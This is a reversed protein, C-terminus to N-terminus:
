QRVVEGIPLKLKSPRDRDHYIVLTIIKANMTRGTAPDAMFGPNVSYAPFCAASISLRLCHGSPLRFCTPQLPIIIQGSDAQAQHHRCYGQTLNYVSGDPRVESVIACLDFSPADATCYLEVQIEGAIAISTALPESTYTLVDSRCDLASRDFSGAPNAAHGGLSPVPRWPDHVFTDPSNDTEDVVAQTLRGDTQDLGALGTSSLWYPTPTVQPWHSFQRWRDGGMEFLCVSPTAALDPDSHKLHHDFWRIQLRDIPTNAEPGFDRQGVKRGWPIHGWPGIWLHQLHQSRDRMQKFLRLNGWLYPDFWGGIHLMPLDIQSLDPTLSQWYDDWQPHAVWDHFFSDPAHHKLVEPCTPIPESLPLNRSAKFLAEYAIEDGKLRATEAALQIAWGLGAQLLLAGNEYAWDEYLNYGVMAPAIAKLATPKAQAAYLQTMGQYSFGYMGVQGNSQPLQAAWAVTDEGDTVEHEFLRFDGESTGRGRVDQIVVLYGHAAYWIPHAYVVTSAIARGYPQRMLLVPFEGAADPAYIDADLRIRDRTFM